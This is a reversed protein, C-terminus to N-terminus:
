KSGNKRISIQTKAFAERKRPLGIDHRTQYVFEGIKQIGSKNSIRLVSSKSRPHIRRAISYRIGLKNSIRELALWDQDFSGAMTFQRSSKGSYFCGDGDIWGRVFFEHLNEPMADLIKTPSSTSKNGYDYELLFAVLKANSCEATVQPSRNPRERRIYTWKGSFDLVHHLEEMDSEKIEIRVSKRKYQSLITGDAWIFGLLYAHEPTAFAIFPDANVNRLSQDQYQNM